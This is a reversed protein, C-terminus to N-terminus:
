FRCMTLYCVEMSPISQGSMPTVNPFQSQVSTQNNDFAPAPIDTWLSGRQTSEMARNLFIVGEIGDM